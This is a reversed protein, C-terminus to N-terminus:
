YGYEHGTGPSHGVERSYGFLPPFAKAKL